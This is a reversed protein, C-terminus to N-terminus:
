LLFWLASLILIFVIAGVSDKLMDMGKEKIPTILIPV